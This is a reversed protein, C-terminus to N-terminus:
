EETTVTTALMYGEARVTKILQYAGHQAFRQRLRSVMVDISRDFPHADRGKTLNLLHDRSLIKSPNKVFIELLKFETSSLEVMAHDPAILERRELDLQWNSFYLKKQLPLHETTHNRYKTRRLITKIRALLERPNFPKSLYDDAGMELGIIKETDESKATLMIVPINSETHLKRCLSLGDEGPLMLDLIVIDVPHKKILNLLREGNPLTTVVLGQKELYTKLLDRIEEDDDIVLVTDQTPKM